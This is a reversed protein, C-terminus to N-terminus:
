GRLLACLSEYVGDGVTNWSWETEAKLRGARGMCRAREPDRLLALCAGALAEPDRPPVLFGTQGHDVQDPLGGVSTAVVPVAHAYAVPIVGSQSAYRYPAVLGLAQQFWSSVSGHDVWENVIEIQSGAIQPGWRRLSGRGVILLRAEPMEQQILEFAALLTPIGKYPRIRGFFLLTRDRRRDGEGRDSHSTRYASFEGLPVIDIRAPDVGKSSFLPKLSPSLLIFRDSQRVAWRQAAALLINYRGRWLDPDHITLLKAYDPLYANVLPTWLHVMPYYIVDPEFQDILGALERIRALRFTSRVFELPSSYTDVTRLDIGATCWAELNSLRSSIFARLECRRSLERAVQLGYNAGGGGKGLFVTAVRM